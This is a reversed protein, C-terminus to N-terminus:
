SFLLRKSPSYMRRKVYWGWWVCICADVFLSFVLPCNTSACCRAVRTYVHESHTSLVVSLRRRTSHTVSFFYDSFSKHSNSSISARTSGTSTSANSYYNCEKVWDAALLFCYGFLSTRAIILKAVVATQLRHSITWSRRSGEGGEFSKKENNRIRQLSEM